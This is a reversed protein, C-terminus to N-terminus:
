GSVAVRLRESAEPLSRLSRPRSLRYTPLSAYALIDTWSPPWLRLAFHRVLLSLRAASAVPELSTRDSWTLEVFGGFPLELDATPMPVRWREREGVKGLAEGIGLRKATEERLDLCRPGTIANGDRIVLVDDAMVVVGDLFLQALTSSKGAGKEGLLAWVRGGLVVGGAHFASWGRWRATTAATLSLFPHVMARADPPEPLRLTSRSADSDIDVWGGGSLRLFARKGNFSECRDAPPDVEHEHEIRWEPWHDPAPVLLEAAAHLDPLRLGYAGYGASRGGPGNALSSDTL